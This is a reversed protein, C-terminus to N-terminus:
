LHLVGYEDRFRASSWPWNKPDRVLFAKVPNNEIYKVTEFQQRSGRMYTDWCDKAWFRGTRGLIRNAERATYRKLQAIVRVLPESRVCLLAHVHNPMVCWALLGCIRGDYFRLAGDMLRGVEPLRLHCEGRGRDLYGELQRRREANDEVELAAKWESRLSAPFSDALHFTIFQTLGPEDRHPLYGREHWGTFGRKWDDPRVPACSHRKAEILDRVWPNYPLSGHSARKERKVRINLAQSHEGALRTIRPGRSTGLRLVKAM